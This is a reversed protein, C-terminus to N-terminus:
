NYSRVQRQPQLEDLIGQKAERYWAMLRDFASQVFTAWQEQSIVDGLRVSIPLGPVEIKVNELQSYTVRALEQKDASEMKKGFIDLAHESMEYVAFIAQHLLPMLLQEIAEAPRGEKRRLELWLKLGKALQLLGYLLALLGAVSLAFLLVQFWLQQLLENM